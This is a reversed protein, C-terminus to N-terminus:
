AISCYAICHLATRLAAIVSVLLLCLFCDTYVLARSTNTEDLTRQQMKWRLQGTARIEALKQVLIVLDTTDKLKIEGENREDM